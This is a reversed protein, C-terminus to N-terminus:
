ADGQRQPNELGRYYFKRCWAKHARQIREQGDFYTNHKTVSM